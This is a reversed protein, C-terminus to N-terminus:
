RKTVDFPLEIQVAAPTATGPALTFGNLLLEKHGPKATMATTILIKVTGAAPDYKFVPAPNTVVNGDYTFTIPQATDLPQINSFTVETSDSENLITSATVAAPTTQPVPLDWEILEGHSANHWVFRFSKYALQSATGTSAPIQVVDFANKENAKAIVTATAVTSPFHKESVAIAKITPKATIPFPKREYYLNSVSPDTTPTTGDTTYFIRANTDKGDTDVDSISAMTKSGNALGIVPTPTMVSNDPAPAFTIVATTRSTVQFNDPTLTFKSLGEYVELCDSDPKDSNSKDSDSVHCNWNKPSQLNEFDTGTVTYVPPLAPAATKPPAATIKKPGTCNPTPAPKEPQGEASTTSQPPQRPVSRPARAQGSTVASTQTKGQASAQTQSPESAVPKGPPPKPVACKLNPKEPATPASNDTPPPQNTALLALSTFAPAFRIKDSYKFTTWSLDRVTYSQAARLLDTSALFHYTCTIGGPPDAGGDECAQSPSELFPTEHLGYVQTGILFLPAPQEDATKKYRKGTAVKAEVWSNGDPRPTAELSAKAIGCSNQDDSDSGLVPSLALPITKGSEDVLRLDDTILLNAANAFFEIRSGDFTTPSIVNPGSMVSFSQSLFEGNATVKLTGGGMDNVAVKKVEIPNIVQIPDTERIISCSGKYVAGVVQNKADYERWRTQIFVLPSYQQGIAVPLALQAFVQRQGSQVYSAGLVPRFQWGFVLPNVPERVQALALLPGPDDACTNGVSQWAEIVRALDAVHEQPSRGIPTAGNPWSKLPNARKDATYLLAVTDTDKALYLRNKSKGGAVGVNVPSIVVGAGFAKQNSTIKAVNYTKAAPLLNVVRIADDGGHQQYVWIKVEAVAHKYRQHSDFSINFGLTTQQRTGTAKGQRTLYQDSLAGQLALQLSTIQANFQVQDILLDSPSEGTNTPPAFATSAPATPVAATVTPNTTVTQQTLPNQTVVTQAGAAPNSNGAPTTTTTITVPSVATGTEPTCTVASGSATTPVFGAPCTVTISSTSVGSAPTTTVTGTSPNSVTSVINPTPSTTVQASLFSSSSTIGQLNTFAANISAPNFGSLSSLESATLALKQRLSYVDYVELHDIRIGNDKTLRGAALMEQFASLPRSADIAYKEVKHVYPRCSESPPYVEFHFDTVSEWGSRAAYTQEVVKENSPKKYDAFLQRLSIGNVTFNDSNPGRTHELLSESVLLGGQSLVFAPILMETVNSFRQFLSRVYIANIVCPEWSTIDGNKDRNPPPCSKEPYFDPVTKGLCSPTKNRADSYACWIFRIEVFNAEAPLLVPQDPRLDNSGLADESDSALRYSASVHQRLEALSFSDTVSNGDKRTTLLIPIYGTSKLDPVAHATEKMAEAAMNLDTKDLSTKSAQTAHAPWAYTLALITLSYVSATWRVM